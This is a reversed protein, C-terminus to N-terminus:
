QWAVTICWQQFSGGDPSNMDEPTLTWNGMMQANDFGALTANPTRSPPSNIGPAANNCVNEVAGGNGEDDLTVGYDDVGCGFTSAPVGPRDVLVRSTAGHTLTWKMDGPWLHAATITVNVDTVTGAGPININSATGLGVQPIATNPNACATFPNPVNSCQGTDFDCNAACSLTGGGVFGQSVCTQGGLNAGDCQEGPDITGDGCETCDSTDFMCNNPSNCALTGGDFGQSICTQNDLQAATCNAGQNGCDCEDAGDVMGNGCANDNCMGTDFLCANTCSLTGGGVFGLSVCTQGDLDNGECQESGEIMADGCESCAATDFGSCDANCGLTGADFGQTVCTEGELVGPECVEAGSVVGDGCLSCNSTDIMCSDTCSLSGEDFPEMAPSQFNSCELGGFDAGDCAESGQLVADGCTSCPSTDFACGETCALEGEDFGLSMCTEGSLDPAPLNPGAPECAEPATVMGDGCGSCAAFDYTCMDTCALPESPTGLGVDACTANDGLDTEDCQEDGDITGNGCQSCQSTDFSCDAACALGGSGFGESECTAGGLAGGDCEEGLEIVGNGCEGTEGTEGTTSEDSTSTTDTATTGAEDDTSTATTEAAEVIPGICALNPAILLLALGLPPRAPRPPM